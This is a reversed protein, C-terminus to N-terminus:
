GITESREIACDITGAHAAVSLEPDHYQWVAGSPSDPLVQLELGMEFAISLNGSPRDIRVLIPTQDALLKTAEQAADIPLPMEPPQYQGASTIAENGDVVIRWPSNVELQGRSFVFLSGASHEVHSFRQTRLAQQLHLAAPLREGRFWAAVEPTNLWILLFVALAAALLHCTKVPASYTDWATFALLELASGALVVIRAWNRGQRYFWLVLFPLLMLPVALAFSLATWRVGAFFLAYVLAAALLLAMGLTTGALHRPATTGPVEPQLEKLM